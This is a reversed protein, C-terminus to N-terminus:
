NLFSYPIVDVLNGTNITEGVKQRVFVDGWCASSLIGSSQNKFIEVGTADKSLRARLYVERNEAKKDFEARASIVKPGIDTCGQSVLLFPRVLIKFTVFVSAPNGPLGFFPVNAIAGFAIPKGPKIAVRWFDIYGVEDVARKVYDEDGVSVGGCCIIIDTREAAKKLSDATAALNDEAIGLDIPEMGMSSILGILLARNSNYIQGRSLPNGPEVLENGTSLVGIKMPKFISIKSKGISSLLGMEQARIITGAPLLHRESQIDQGKLRVNAGPEITKDLVVEGDQEQCDEQLAVTDAGLPMEAGTFIRAVSNKELTPPAVGAPIRLTVPLRFSKAAADAYCFAYGDMASNDEPPVDLAPVIDESLIHGLSDILSIPKSDSPSVASSVLKGIAEEVTLM